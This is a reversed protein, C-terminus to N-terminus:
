NVARSELATTQLRVGLSNMVRMVTDFRPKVGDGFAKYLSERGLGTDKAVASM